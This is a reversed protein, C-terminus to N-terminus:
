ERGKEYDLQSAYKALNFFLTANHILADHHFVVDPKTIIGMDSAQKNLYMARDILDNAIEVFYKGRKTYM